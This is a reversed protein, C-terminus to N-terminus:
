DNEEGSLSEKHNNIVNEYYNIIDKQQKIYRYMDAFNYSLNEYDKVTFAIFILEGNEKINKEIYEDITEETIVSFSIPKFSVKKPSSVTVINPYVYEKVIIEKPKFLSCGGLNILLLSLSIVLFKKLRM